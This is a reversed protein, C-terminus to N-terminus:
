IRGRKWTVALVSRFCWRLGWGGVAAVLLAVWRCGLIMLRSLTSMRLWAYIAGTTVRRLKAMAPVLPYERYWEDCDRGLDRLCSSLASFAALPPLFVASSGRQFVLYVAPTPSAM